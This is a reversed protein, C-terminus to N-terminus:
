QVESSRPGHWIMYPPKKLIVGANPFRRLAYEYASEQAKMCSSAAIDHSVVKFAIRDDDGVVASYLACSFEEGASQQTSIVLHSGDPFTLLPALNLRSM